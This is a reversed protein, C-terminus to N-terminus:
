PFTYDLTIQNVLNLEDVNKLFGHLHAETIIILFTYFMVSLFRYKSM